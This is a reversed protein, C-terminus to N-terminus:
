CLVLIDLIRGQKQNQKIHLFGGKQDQMVRYIKCIKMINNLFHDSRFYLDLQKDLQKHGSM